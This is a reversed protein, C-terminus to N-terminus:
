IFRLQGNESQNEYGFQSPGILLPAPLLVHPAKYLVYPVTYLLVCATSHTTSCM